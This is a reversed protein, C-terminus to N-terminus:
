ARGNSQAYGVSSLRHDVKWRTLFDLFAHSHMPPGGDRSLEEPVGYAQFIDRTIDKLHLATAQGPPLHYLMLWGTLRDACVLYAHEEVFFLDLAIKQFPWDPSETIVIPEKPQSPSIRICTSCSEKHNRISADMGPWYVTENARAKMGSVGQHAAHLCRLVRGRFGVPIVIRRDLM